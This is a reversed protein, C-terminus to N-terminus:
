AKEEKWDLIEDPWPAPVMESLHSKALVDATRIKGKRPSLTFIQFYLRACLTKGRFFEIQRIFSYENWTILRTTVKFSSFIPIPKYFRSNLRKIVFMWNNLISTRAFGSRLAHAWAIITGVAVYRPMSFVRLGDTDLLPWARASSSFNETLEIRPGFLAKLYHWLIRPLFDFM